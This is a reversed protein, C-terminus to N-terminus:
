LPLWCAVQDRVEHQLLAAGPDMAAPAMGLTWLLHQQQWTLELVGCCWQALSFLCGVMMEPTPALWPLAAPPPPLLDMAMAQMLRVLGPRLVASATSTTYLGAWQGAVQQWFTLLHFVVDQTSTDGRLETLRPLLQAALCEMWTM